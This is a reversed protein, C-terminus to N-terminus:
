KKGAVKPSRKKQVKKNYNTVCQARILYSMEKLKQTYGIEDHKRNHEREAVSVVNMNYCTTCLHALEREPFVNSKFGGMKDFLDQQLSVGVVEASYKLQNCFDCEYATAKM